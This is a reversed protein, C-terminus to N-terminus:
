NNHFNEKSILSYGDRIAKKDNQIRKLFSKFKNISFKNAKFKSRKMMYDKIVYDRYM